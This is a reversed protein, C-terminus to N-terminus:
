SHMLMLVSKNLCQKSINLNSIFPNVKKSKSIHMRLMESIWPRHEASIKM